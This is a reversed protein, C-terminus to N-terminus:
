EVGIAEGQMEEMRELEEVVRVGLKLGEINPAGKEIAQCFETILVELATPTTPEDTWHLNGNVTVSIPTREPMEILHAKRPDFGLDLCMAVLHPGWDWLWGLKSPGGAQMFISDVRGVKAKFARWSPSYLRTHGTFVVNNSAEILLRAAHDAGLCLPKEIVCPIENTIMELAVPFHSNPDSAIIVGRCGRLSRGFDKYWDRGLQIYDVGMKELTRAYTDGWPGRGIIGLRM